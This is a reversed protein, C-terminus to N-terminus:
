HNHTHAPPAVSSVEMMRVVSAGKSVVKEGKKLGETIEVREGDSGGTKVLRKEYDHDADEVYVYKNGQIEVLATRPVSIVGEREGCLLYVEVYGGSVTSADGLFSFYVPVYGQISNGAAGKTIRQGERESLKVLEGSETIFNAGDLHLLHSTSKSPLDAKLVQRTSETVFAIPTGVDVYEGSKVMLSSLIGSKQTSLNSSGNGKHSGAIAKAEEYARQAERFTSATVLGEAYLPQLREYEAQAAKLNAAAAQSADGGEVGQSSIYGITEGANVRMGESVGSRLSVIGSKRASITYSDAASAQIEGSTKIVDRFKGPTVTEVDITFGKDSHSHDNINHGEHAEENHHSDHFHSSENEHEESHNHVGERHELDHDHTHKEDTTGTHDTHSKIDTNGPNGACNFMMATVGIVLWKRWWWKDKSIIRM